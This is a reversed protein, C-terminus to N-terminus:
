VCYRSQDIKKTIPDFFKYAKSVDSYGLFICKVGKDDLKKRKEDTVHAYAICGFVRLHSVRPKEGSWAEIPTMNIVSQTPSRNLVYVTWQVVEPWFKKPVGSTYLVSRVMNLITRNKREAVGNQQPTFAATFQRKIGDKKCFDAFENSKYEGGRDSRLTKHSM